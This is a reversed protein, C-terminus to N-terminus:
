FGTVPLRSHGESPIHFCSCPLCLGLDGWELMQFSGEGPLKGLARRPLPWGQVPTVEAGLTLPFPLVQGLHPFGADGDPRHIEMPPAVTQLYGLKNRLIVQGWFLKGKIMSASPAASAELLDEARDDNIDTLSM